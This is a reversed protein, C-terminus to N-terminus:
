LMQAQALAENAAHLDNQDAYAVVQNVKQHFARHPKELKKLSPLNRYKDQAQGFYWQGLPCQHDDGLKDKDIAASDGNLYNRLNAIWVRHAQKASDFDLRGDDSTFQSLLETLQGSMGSLDSGLEALQRSDQTTRETQASISTINQNMEEAVSSQEETASAIQLTMQNINDVAQKIANLATDTKETQAEVGVMQERGTRVEAVSRAIGDRLQGIMANIQQTSDQTKRALSRVEDAVVAFGRGHEGARAAEIAANLALLNTQDAIEGIVKLVKEIKDGHLELETIAAETETFQNALSCVAKHTRAVEQQGAEAQQEADSVAQAVKAAQEAVDAVTATMENMAAAVQDIQESQREMNLRTSTGTASLQDSAASLAMASENFRGFVTNFRAQALKIAQQLQGIENEGCVSIKQRLQGGAMRKLLTGAQEMPRLLMRMLYIYLLSALVAIILTLIMARILWRKESQAIQEFVQLSEAFVVEPPSDIQALVPHNKLHQQQTNILRTLERNHNWVDLVGLVSFIFILAFGALTLWRLPVDHLSKRRPIEERKGENIEQYLKEAKKIQEASPKTRVSQYGVIEQDAYVPTVYAEVWYHDGNKRRNKVLQRWTQGAKITRWLDAFAQPPMDPHRIVNHHQGILEERSFGSVRIFDKNVYTIRGKLDTTSILQTDDPYDFNRQTVPLNKKM